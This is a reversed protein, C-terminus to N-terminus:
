QRRTPIGANAPWCSSDRSTGDRKISALYRSALPVKWVGRKTASMLPEKIWALARETRFVVSPVRTSSRSIFVNSGADHAMESGCTIPDVVPNALPDNRTRAL